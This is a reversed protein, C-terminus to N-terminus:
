KKVKAKKAPVAYEWGQLEKKDVHNECFYLGNHHLVYKRRVRYMKAAARSQTSVWVWDGKRLKPKTPM